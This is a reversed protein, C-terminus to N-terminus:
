PTKRQKSQFTRGIRHRSASRFNLPQILGFLQRGHKRTTKTKRRNRSRTDWYNRATSPKRDSSNKRPRPPYQPDSRLYRYGSAIRRGFFNCRPWFTSQYSPTIIRKRKPSCDFRKTRAKMASQSQRESFLGILRARWLAPNCRKLANALRSCNRNMSRNKQACCLHVSSNM